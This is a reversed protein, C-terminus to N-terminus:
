FSNRSFVRPKESPRRKASNPTRIFASFPVFACPRGHTPLPLVNKTRLCAYSPRLAHPLLGVPLNLEGDVNFNYQELSIFISDPVLNWQIQNFFAIFTWNRNNKKQNTFKEGLHKFQIMRAILLSSFRHSPGALFQLGAGAIHHPMRPVRGSIARMRKCNSHLAATSQAFM